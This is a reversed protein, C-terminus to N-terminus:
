CMFFLFKTYFRVQQLYKGSATTCFSSIRRFEACSPSVKYLVVNGYINGPHQPVSAQYEEFNLVHLLSVKYLVLSDRLYKGSATICFSSIRRFEACSPSVKYLVLNGYINGPHQSVSAQYEEFNLVHLLSVKYLVLSGYINGSHQPVTAQYEEFNLVHLFFKIYFWVVTFIERISHYLLQYEEFFSPSVKYLVLNGYINGPHQSVSAQYEEFNLM